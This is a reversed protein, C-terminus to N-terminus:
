LKPLSIDWASPRIGHDLPLYITVPSSIGVSPDDNEPDLESLSAVGTGYGAQIAEQLLSTLHRHFQRVGLVDGLWVLLHGAGALPDPNIDFVDRSGAQDTLGLLVGCFVPINNSGWNISSNLCCLQYPLISGSHLVPM